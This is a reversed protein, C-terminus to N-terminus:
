LFANTDNPTAAGAGAGGRAHQDREDQEGQRAHVDAVQEIRPPGAVM